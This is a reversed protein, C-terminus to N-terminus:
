RGTVERRVRAYADLTVALLLVAGTIMFRVSSAFALLDMGNAISGIVLAGLLASWTSGRGGFLSTGGIV